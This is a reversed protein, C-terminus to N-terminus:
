CPRTFHFVGIAAKVEPGKELTDAEIGTAPAVLVRGGGRHEVAGIVLTDRASSFGATEVRDHEAVLELAAVGGATRGTAERDRREIRERQQRHHGARGAM